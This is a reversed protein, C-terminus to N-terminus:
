KGFDVANTNAGAISRADGDLANDDSAFSLPMFLDGILVLMVTFVFTRRMLNVLSGARWCRSRVISVDM